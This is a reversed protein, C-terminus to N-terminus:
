RYFVLGWKDIVNHLLGPILVFQVNSIQKKNEWDFLFRTVVKRLIEKAFSIQSEHRNREILQYKLTNQKTSRTKHRNLPISKFLESIDDDTDDDDNDVYTISFPFKLWEDTLLCFAVHYTSIELTTSILMMQMNTDTFNLITQYNMNSLVM